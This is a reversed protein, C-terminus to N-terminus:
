AGTALIGDLGFWRVGMRVPYHATIISGYDEIATREDGFARILYGGLTYPTEVEIAGRLGVHRITRQRGFTHVTHRTEM